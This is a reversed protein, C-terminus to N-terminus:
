ERLGGGERAQASVRFVRAQFWEERLARMMAPNRRGGGCVVVVDVRNALRGQTWASLRGVADKVCAATAATAPPPPQRRQQSVAVPVSRALM